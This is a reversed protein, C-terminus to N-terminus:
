RSRTDPGSSSEVASRPPSVEPRTVRPRRVRAIGQDRARANVNRTRSTRYQPRRPLGTGPRVAIRAERAGQHGKRDPSALQPPRGQMRDLVPGGPRVGLPRLPDNPGRLLRNSASMESPGPSRPAVSDLPGHIPKGPATPTGRVTSM